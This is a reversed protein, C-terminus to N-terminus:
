GFILLWRQTCLRNSCYKGLGEEVPRTADISRTLVSGLHHQLRELLKIFTLVWLKLLIFYGHCIKSSRLLPFKELNIQMLVQSSSWTIAKFYLYKLLKDLYGNENSM